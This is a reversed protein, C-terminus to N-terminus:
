PQIAASFLGLFVSKNIGPSIEGLARVFGARSSRVLRRFMTVGSYSFRRCDDFGQQLKDVFGIFFLCEEGGITGLARLNM